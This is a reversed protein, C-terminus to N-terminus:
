AIRQPRVLSAVVSVIAIAAFGIAAFLPIDTQPLGAMPLVLSAILSLGSASMLLAPTAVGPPLVPADSVKKAPAPAPARRAQPPAAPAAGPAGGSAMDNAAPPLFVAEEAQPTGAKAELHKLVVPWNPDSVPPRNLVDEYQVINYRAWIKVPEIRVPLLKNENLAYTAEARVERSQMANESWFVLVARSQELARQIEFDWDGGPTLDDDWWIQYGAGKLASVLEAVRDRDRSSYSIFVQGM